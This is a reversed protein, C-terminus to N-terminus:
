HTCACNDAERLLILAEHGEPLHMEARSLPTSIQVDEVKPVGWTLCSRLWKRLRGLESTQGEKTSM